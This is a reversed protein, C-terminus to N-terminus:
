EIVQDARQLLSPPITLGLAKATKLNIVLEFKSPQEIPLDGPNAGRLIKDVYIACRRQLDPFDMGYSILGGAELYERHEYIAPIRHVAALEALQKRHSFLFPSAAVLLGNDRNAAMGRFAAPLDEPRPVRLTHLEVGLTQASLAAQRTYSDPPAEPGSRLFAVRSLRPVLAHLLDLRKPVLEDSLIQLGTLNGGPRALSAALGRTVLDPGSGVAVIPITSTEMTLLKATGSSWALIVDLKLRVLEAAAPRAQDETAAYRREVVLNQGEVWGLEKMKIWMPGAARKTLEEPSPQPGILLNGLRATKGAPQAEAALPAALLSGTMAGIFTRRDM